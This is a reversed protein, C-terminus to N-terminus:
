RFCKKTDSDPFCFMVREDGDFLFTGCAGLQFADPLAGIRTLKCDVIKSIQFLKYTWRKGFFYWRNITVAVLVVLFSYNAMSRQLVPIIHAQIRDLLSDLIKTLAVKFVVIFWIAIKWMLKGDFKILVPKNSSYTNLVLVSKKDPQCDFSECPCGFPCDDKFIYYLIQFSTSCIKQINEGSMSMSWIADQFFQCM